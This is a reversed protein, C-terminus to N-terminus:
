NNLVHGSIISLIITYEEIDKKLVDYIEETLGIENAFKKTFATEISDTEGDAACLGILELMVIRKKEKSVESFFDVLEKMSHLNTIDYFSVSMERCYQMIMEKEADEVIGNSQATYVALDLFMEKEKNNLRSLFM